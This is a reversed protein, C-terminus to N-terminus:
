PLLIIGVLADNGSGNVVVRHNGGTVTLEDLTCEAGGDCSLTSVDEFTTGNFKQLKINNLNQPNAQGVTVLINSYGTTDFLTSTFPLNVHNGLIIKQSDPIDILTATTTVLGSSAGLGFLYETGLVPISVEPCISNGGCNFRHQEQTTSEPPIKVRAAWNIISGTTIVNFTILDYGEPVNFPQEFSAPRNESIILDIPPLAQPVSTPTPTSNELIEVRDELNAIRSEHDLLAENIANQVYEITAFVPNKTSSANTATSSLFTGLVFIGLTLSIIQKKTM